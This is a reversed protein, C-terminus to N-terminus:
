ICPTLVGANVTEVIGCDRTAPSKMDESPGHHVTVPTKTLHILNVYLPSPSNTIADPLDCRKRGPQTHCIASPLLRERRALTVPM